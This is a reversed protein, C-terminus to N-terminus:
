EGEGWRFADPVPLGLHDLIRHVVTDAVEEVTRPRSYFELTRHTAPPAPFVAISTALAPLLDSTQM